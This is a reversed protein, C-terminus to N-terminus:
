IQAKVWRGFFVMVTAELIAGKACDGSLNPGAPFEDVYDM